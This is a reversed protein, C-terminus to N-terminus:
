SSSASATHIGGGIAIVRIKAAKDAAPPVVAVFSLTDQSQLRTRPEYRGQQGALLLPRLYAPVTIPPGPLVPVDQSLASRTEVTTNLYMAYLVLVGGDATRLALRGYNSGELVWQYVDGPPASIGRASTAAQQYLGTTFPGSAVLRSAPSAPGDDVV